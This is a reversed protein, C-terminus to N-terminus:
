IVIFATPIEREKGNSLENVLKGEYYLTSSGGGDLNAANYAGYEQMIEQLDYLTAGVSSTSRGEIVVFIITGDSTQGITSRPQLGGTSTDTIQNVGDVILFPGFSIADNIGQEIAEDYTYNGLKLIGDSTLGIMSYVENEEGYLLEEDIITLSNLTGNGGRRSVSYGGANMAVVAGSEEVTQSLKTGSDGDLTDVLSVSTPDSIMVVYGEYNNNSIEEITIEQEKNNVSIGEGTSNTTNEVEYKNLIEEIEDDSLFWTALFQHSATSMATQVWLDRYTAFLDTKFFVFIGGACFLTIVLLVVVIRKMIKRM